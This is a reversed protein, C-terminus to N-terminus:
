VSTGGSGKGRWVRDGDDWGDWWELAGEEEGHGVQKVQLREQERNITRLGATGGEVGNGTRLRSVGGEQGGQSCGSSARERIDYLGM